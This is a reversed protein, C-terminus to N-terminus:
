TLTESEFDFEAKFDVITNDNEFDCWVTLAKNSGMALIMQEHALPWSGVRMEMIEPVDPDRIALRATVAFLPENSEIKEIRDIFVKLRRVM